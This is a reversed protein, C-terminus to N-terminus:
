DGWCNEDLGLDKLGTVM